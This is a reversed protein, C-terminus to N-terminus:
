QSSKLWRVTWVAPAIYYGINQEKSVCFASLLRRGRLHGADDPIETTKRSSSRSHHWMSACPLPNQGIFVCWVTGRLGTAKLWIRTVLACFIPLGFLRSIIKKREIIILSYIWNVGADSINFQLTYIFWVPIPLSFKLSRRLVNM